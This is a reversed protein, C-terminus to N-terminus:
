QFLVKRLLTHNHQIHTQKLNTVFMPLMHYGIFVQCCLGLSLSLSGTQLSTPVSCIGSLFKMTLIFLYHLDALFFLCRVIELLMYPVCVELLQDAIVAYSVTLTFSVRTDINTKKYLPCCESELAVQSADTVCTLTSKHHYVKLIRFNMCAKHPCPSTLSSHFIATVGQDSSLELFQPATRLDLVCRCGWIYNCSLGFVASSKDTSLSRGLM